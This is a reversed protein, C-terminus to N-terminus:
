IRSTATPSVAAPPAAVREPAPPPPAAATPPGSSLVETEEGPLSVELTSSGIQLSDGPSLRTATAIVEGNVYTGNSSDLDEVVLTHGDVRVRTHERSVGPDEIVYGGPGPERGLVLEDRVRIEVGAAPGDRATLCIEGM